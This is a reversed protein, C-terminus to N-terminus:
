PARGEDARPRRARLVVAVFFWAFAAAGVAGVAGSVRVLLTWDGAIGAVVGIVAAAHCWRHIALPREHVLASVLPPARGAGAAHMSALFPVIRQLMGLLFSLLWGLLAVAGFLAPGRWPWLDLAVLAGLALALPLSAWGARVLVFSPGLRKRMRKEMARAMLLLHLLAALLGLAAGLATMVPAGLLAGAAGVVLAAAAVGFSEITARPTPAPALAFMPVLIFSFGLVLMGMFGFVALIVHAGALSARGTLFGAHQDVALVLGLTALAALSAVAAWGHAVVGPMGRARALSLALLGAALLVGCAALAGGAIAAAPWTEAIGAAFLATGPLLLWAALRAPWEAALPQRTAVPLLQFAAGFATAAFVGLTLVHLMALARGPGAVFNPITEATWVIGLWFALHFAVAGGFYRFPISFPLLRSKAGGLFGAAATKAPANM